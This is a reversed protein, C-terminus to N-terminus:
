VNWMGRDLVTLCEGGLTLAELEMTAQSLHRDKVEKKHSLSPEMSCRHWGKEPGGATHPHASPNAAHGPWPMRHRRTWPPTRVRLGGRPKDEAPTYTHVRSPHSHETVHSSEKARM